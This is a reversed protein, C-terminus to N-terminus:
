LPDHLAEDNIAAQYALTVEDVSDAMFTAHGDVYAVHVGGPHLSRPAASIYRWLNFDTTCPMQELQEGVKDPCKYLVDPTNPSNPRQTVGFSIKDFVYGDPPQDMASDQGYTPYHMDVSLLTSGSWPLAWAGRQDAQDDRTRVESFMLTDATGDVIEKLTVGYLWIAGKYKYGDVHFPSAFGAYNAKGFMVPQSDYPADSYAYMRSLAQDSPCLLATPQAAQPNAANAAVHKKQDFQSYLASQELYPLLRTVWSHLLGKRMDISFYAGQSFKVAEDAPLFSGAPPLSHKAEEYDLAALALQKLNNTCQARRGAERAAQVAPLLLAVLAGIIAIVVLLEVLTFGGRRPSLRLARQTIPAAAM